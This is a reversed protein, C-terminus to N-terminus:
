RSLLKSLYEHAEVWNPVLDIASQFCAIAEDTKGINSFLIGLNFYPQAFNPEIDLSEKYALIADMVRDQRIFASGLNCHADAYSPEIQIAREFCAIAKDVLDRVLDSANSQDEPQLSNIKYLWAVGLANYDKAQLIESNHAEARQYIASVTEPDNKPFYIQAIARYGDMYDPNSIIAREYSAIAESIRGRQKLSDGLKCHYEALFRDPSSELAQQFHTIALEAWGMQQYANGLGLQADLSLPDLELAKSFSAIAEMTNGQQQYMEALREHAAAFEPNITLARQYNKYALPLNGSLRYRDGFQLYTEPSEVAAPNIVDTM